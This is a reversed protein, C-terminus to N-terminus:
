LIFSLCCQYEAVVTDDIGLYIVLLISYRFVLISWLIKRFIGRLTAFFTEPRHRETHLETRCELHKLLFWRCCGMSPQMAGNTKKLSGSCGADFSSVVADVQCLYSYLCSCPRNQSNGHKQLPSHSNIM